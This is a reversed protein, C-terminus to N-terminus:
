KGRRCKIPAVMLTLKYHQAQALYYQHCVDTIQNSLFATNLQNAVVCILLYCDILVNLPECSNDTQLTHYQSTLSLNIISVFVWKPSRIRLSYKLIKNFASHFAERVMLTLEKLLSYGDRRVYFLAVSLCYM